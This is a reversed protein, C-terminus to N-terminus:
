DMRAGLPSVSSRNDTLSGLFLKKAEPSNWYTELVMIKASASGPAAATFTTSAKAKKYSSCCSAALVEEVKRKAKSQVHIKTILDVVESLGQAVSYRDNISEDQLLSLFSKKGNSPPREILGGPRTIFYGWIEREPNGYTDVGKGKQRFPGTQNSENFDDLM